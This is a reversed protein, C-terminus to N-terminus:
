AKEEIMRNIKERVGLLYGDDHPYETFTIPEHTGDDIVAMVADKGCLSEALRMARLDTLAQTFGLMHVTEYPTGDPAPYVSFADGAPVWWDGDTIMYPDILELSGQSYYFNYGWQLFGAIDYKYFQTGIIRNRAQPMAVLRNAVKTHQCCCYYVWLNKVGADIFVGAHDTSVAPTDVAGSKYFEYDSLADMVVQSRLADAVAAKAALYSELKDGGPEDSLHFAYRDRLGMSDLKAILAPILANLFGAYEPSTADTDWGFLRKEVGDDRGTIKPAHHAGWQTFLHSLEFYKIGCAECLTVWKELREFGFSWKGDDRFVDVLQVTPREHGEATDLPPTFIPTLIMNMGNKVACRVFNEIIRWHEDSFVPVRYYSALCDAHFWETYKITQEPLTAALIKASFEATAWVDGSDAGVLEVTVPYTGAAADDPVTIDIWLSQLTPVASIHTTEDIPILLDPYLGPTRRLFNEDTVDPPVALRVPVYEVKAVSIFDKIPSTVRVVAVKHWPASKDNDCYAAQFSFREGRLMSASSYKRKSAIDEDPFCKELSSIIKLSLDPKNDM